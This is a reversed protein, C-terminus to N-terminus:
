LVTHCFANETQFYSASSGQRGGKGNKNYLLEGNLKGKDNSSKTHDSVLAAFTSNQQSM